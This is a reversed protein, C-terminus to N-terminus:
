QIEATSKLTDNQERVTIVGKPHRIEWDNFREDSEFGKGFLLADATRIRVSEESYITKKEEDWFMRETQISDGQENIAVVNHRADWLKKKRLYLAYSARILTTTRGTSDYARVLIGKPFEDYDKGNRAYAYMSAAYIEMECRGNKTYLMHLSDGIVDPVNLLDQPSVVLRDQKKCGVAVIQLALLSVVLCLLVTKRRYRCVTTRCEKFLGLRQHTGYDDRQDLM